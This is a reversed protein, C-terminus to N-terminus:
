GEELVSDILAAVSPVVRECAAIVQPPSWPLAIGHDAVAHMSLDNWSDGVSWTEVEQGALPGALLDTLGQGKSCGAPVVDLFDQNRYLEIGSGCCETIVQAVRDNEADDPVRVPVGIFRHVAEDGFIGELFRQAFVSSGGAIGVEATTLGGTTAFVTIGSIGTLHTMIEQVVGDPLYRASLLRYDGDTLVAGTFAVAYDFSVGCPGLADRTAFVSKGTDVVLLHGARRWREMAALDDPSVQRDFLITGDLDTAILKRM